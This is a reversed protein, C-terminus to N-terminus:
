FRNCAEIVTAVEEDNLEPFCPLTLATRAHRETVPLAVDDYRGEHCPQRHDPVPYHVDTDIGAADLHARLEDRQESHVVYLHAVYDRSAIPPTAIRANAIGTSYRGAIDRRRANWGDLLPLMLSLCRAQLEDLRSNRGDPLANVYKQEWGYQRLSRVRAAVGADRAVVAGGDGLAGLNKTPYFSFCGADSFTGAMRGDAARAGHAQACDEVIAVDRVRCAAVIADMRALRGYLHTAVVATIGSRARLAADLAIPDITAEDDLVDVFVPEAGCALVALTAYMAANATIAVRDGPRTGVARLALELADSGNAVGICHPARCYAAFAEEFEAVGPGLVFRGSGIVDHARASLAAHLPAIHRSLSNVPIRAPGM